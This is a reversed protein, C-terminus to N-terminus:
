WISVDVELLLHLNRGSFNRVGRLARNQPDASGWVSMACVSDHARRLLVFNKLLVFNIKIWCDIWIIFYFYEWWCGDSLTGVCDTLDIQWALAVLSIFAKCCPVRPVLYLTDCILFILTCCLLAACAHCVICVLHFGVFLYLQIIRM